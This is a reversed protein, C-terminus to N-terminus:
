IPRDPYYEEDEQNNKLLDNINLREPPQQLAKIMWEPLKCKSTWGSHDLGVSSNDSLDFIPQDEIPTNKLTIKPLLIYDEQIKLLYKYLDDVEELVHTLFNDVNNNKLTTQYKKYGFNARNATRLILEQVIEDKVEIAESNGEIIIKM